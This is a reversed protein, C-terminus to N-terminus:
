TTRGMPEDISTVTFATLKHAAAPHTTGGRVRFVALKLLQLASSPALFTFTCQTGRRQIM